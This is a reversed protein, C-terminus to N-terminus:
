CEGRRRQRALLALAALGALPTAAPEPVVQVSNMAIDFSPPGTVELSIAGALAFDAAGGPGSMTFESFPVELTAFQGGTSAVPVTAESWSEGTPDSGNYVRLTLTTPVDAFFEIAFADLTGGQSLDLPGIGGVDVQDAVGDEGDWVARLTTETEFESSFQLEGMPPIGGNVNVNATGSGSVRTIELDREGGLAAPAPAVGSVSPEGVLLDLTQDSSFDDIPLVAGAPSALALLGAALLSSGWSGRRGTAGGGAAGGMSGDLTETM